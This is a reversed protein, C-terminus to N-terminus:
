KRGHVCKYWVAWQFCASSFRQLTVIAVYLTSYHLPLMHNQRLNPPNYYAYSPDASETSRSSLPPRNLLLGALIDQNQHTHTHDIRSM